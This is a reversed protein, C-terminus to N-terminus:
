LNGFGGLGLEEKSNFGDKIVLETIGGNAVGVDESEGDKLMEVLGIPFDAEVLKILVLLVEFAEPVWGIGDLKNPLIDFFAASKSSSAVIGDGFGRGHAFSEVADFLSTLKFIGDKIPAFCRFGALRVGTEFYVEFSGIDFAFSLDGSM